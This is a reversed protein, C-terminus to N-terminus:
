NGNKEGGSGKRLGGCVCGKKKVTKLSFVGTTTKRATKKREGGECERKEGGKKM